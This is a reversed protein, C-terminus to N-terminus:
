LGPWTVGTVSHFDSMRSPDNQNSQEDTPNKYRLANELERTRFRKFSGAEFLDTKRRRQRERLEDANELDHTARENDEAQEYPQGAHRQQDVDDHRNQGRLHRDKEPMTEPEEGIRRCLREADARREM